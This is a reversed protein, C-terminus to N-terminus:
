PKKTLLDIKKGGAIQPRSPSKQPTRPAELDEFGYPKSKYYEFDKTKTPRLVEGTQVNRFTGLIKPELGQLTPKIGVKITQGTQTPVSEEPYDAASATPIFSIEVDDYNQEDDAYAMLSGDGVEVKYIREIVKNQEEHSLNEFDEKNHVGFLSGLKYKSEKSQSAYWNSLANTEALVVRSAEIPNGLVKVTVMSKNGPFPDGHEWAIGNRDLADTFSNTGGATVAFAIPNNHRDTRWGTESPLFDSVEEGTEQKAYFDGEWKDVRQKPLHVRDVPILQEYVVPKVGGDGVGSQSNFDDIDIIFQQMQQSLREEWAQHVEDAVKKMERIDTETLGTGGAQLKEWYGRVQNVFGQGRTQREYEENRVVSGPDLIRALSGIVATQSPGIAAEGTKKDIKGNAIDKLISEYRDYGAGLAGYFGDVDNAQTITKNQSIQSRTSQVFSLRDKTTIAGKKAEELAKQNADMVKNIQEQIKDGAEIELKNIGDMLTKIKVKKDDSATKTAQSMIDDLASVADDHTAELLARKSEYDNLIGDVAIQYGKGIALNSKLVTLNNIQRMSSLTSIGEQIKTELYDLGLPSTELGASNLERRLRKEKQVNQAMQRQEDEKNRAEIIEKDLQLMDRAYVAADLAIEKNEDAIRKNEELRANFQRERLGVRQATSVVLPDETIDIAEAKTLDEQLKKIQGQRAAVGPMFVALTEPQLGKGMTILNSWELLTGDLDDFLPNKQPETGEKITVKEADGAAEDSRMQNQEAELSTKQESQIEGKINEPTSSQFLKMLRITTDHDYPSYFKGEPTMFYEGSSDSGAITSGSEFVKRLPSGKGLGASTLREERRQEIASTLDGGKLIKPARPTVKPTTSPITPAESSPMSAQTTPKIENPKDENQLDKQGGVQPLVEDKNFGLPDVAKYGQKLRDSAARFQSASINGRMFAEQLQKTSSYVPNGSGMLKYRPDDLPHVGSGVQSYGTGTKSDLLHAPPIYNPDPPKFGTPPTVAVETKRTPQRQGFTVSSFDSSRLRCLRNEHM